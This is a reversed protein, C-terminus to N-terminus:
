HADLMREMTKFARMLGMRGTLHQHDRELGNNLYKSIRHEVAPLIPRL